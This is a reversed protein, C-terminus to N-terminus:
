DEGGCPVFRSSARSGSVRFDDSGEGRAGGLGSRRRPWIQAASSATIEWSHSVSKGGRAGAGAGLAHRAGVRFGAGLRAGAEAGLEGALGIGAVGALHGHGHGGAWPARRGAPDRPRGPGPGAEAPAPAADGRRPSRAPGPPPCAAEAAGARRPPPPPPRCPDAPSSASPNQHPLPASSSWGQPSCAPRPPAGSAGRRGLLLSSATSM